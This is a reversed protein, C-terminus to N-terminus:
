MGQPRNDPQSAAAVRLAARESVGAVLAAFQRRVASDVNDLRDALRQMGSRNIEAQQSVQAVFRVTESFNHDATKGVLPHLTRAVFEAGVNELAVFMDLRTSILLRGSPSQSYGSQLLLVCAGNVRRKFLPGEYYGTAHWLHKDRNGYVLEVTSQTGAGDNAEFVYPATRRIRVRTVGMLQWMNVVVEPYRVLFLYLDPDCDIVEVPLRRYITPQQVVALIKARAAETLEEVPLVSLAEAYAERSSSAHAVDEAHAPYVAWRAWVSAAVAWGLVQRRTADVKRNNGASHGSDPLARVLNELSM